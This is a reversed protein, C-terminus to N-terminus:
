QPRIKKPNLKDLGGDYISNFIFVILQAITSLCGGLPNVKETKYLAAIEKNLQEQNNKYKKQLVTM